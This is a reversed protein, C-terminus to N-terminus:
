GTSKGMRRWSQLVRLMTGDRRVEAKRTGNPGAGNFWHPIFAIENHATFMQTSHLAIDCHCHHCLKRSENEGVYKM